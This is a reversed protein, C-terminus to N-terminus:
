LATKQPRRIPTAVPVGTPSPSGAGAYGDTQPHDAPSVTHQLETLLLPRQFCLRDPASEGPRTCPAHRPSLPSTETSQQIEHAASLSISHRLAPNESPYVFILTSAPKQPKAKVPM